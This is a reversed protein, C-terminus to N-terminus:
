STREVVDPGGRSGTRSLLADVHRARVVEDGSTVCAAVLQQVISQLEADEGDFPYDLLRRYAADEIGVPAGCVRLGERALREGVIARLDEPRDRLRPLSVNGDEEFVRALAEDLRGSGALDPRAIRSTVALTFAVREGWPARGEALARAVVRQVDVPLAGVDVLVLLGRDALALPSTKADTWRALDREATSTAEVVVFAEQGRPSELHARAIFPVADIGGPAHVFLARGSM